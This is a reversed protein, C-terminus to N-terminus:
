SSYVLLTICATESKVHGPLAPFGLRSLYHSCRDIKPKAPWISGIEEFKWELSALPKADDLM